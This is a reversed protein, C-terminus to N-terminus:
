PTAAGDRRPEHRMARIQYRGTLLLAAVTLGIFLGFSAAQPRSPEIPDRLLHPESVVIPQEAEALELDLDLVASELAGIRELLQQSEAELRREEAPQSEVGLVDANSNALDLVTLQDEIALRQTTLDEIATRLLAQRATRDGSTNVALYQEVVAEVFGLAVAPDEHTASVRLALSGSVIDVDLHEELEEPEVGQSRAAPLIVARSRLIVEETRVATEIQVATTASQGAVALVEAEAGRETAQRSTLVVSITPAAVVIIAAVVWTVWPTTRGRRRRRAGAPTADGADGAGDDRQSSGTVDDGSVLAVDTSEDDTRPSDVTAEGHVWDPGDFEDVPDDLETSATM